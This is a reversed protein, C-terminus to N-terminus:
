KIEKAKLITEEINQTTVQPIFNERPTGTIHYLRETPFRYRIQTESLKFRINGWSTRGNSYWYNKSKEHRGSNM